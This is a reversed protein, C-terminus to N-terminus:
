PTNRLSQLSRVVDRIRIAMEHITKVSKQAEESLSAADMQLLQAEALISTLPNNLEHRAHSVAAELKRLQEADDTSSRARLREVLPRLADVPVAAPLQVAVGAEALRLSLEPTQPPLLAVVSLPDPLAKVIVAPDSAPLDCLLVTVRPVQRRIEALAAEAGTATRAGGVGTLGSAWEQVREADAGVVLCWGVEIM